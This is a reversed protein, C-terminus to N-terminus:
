KKMQTALTVPLDDADTWGLATTLDGRRILMLWYYKEGGSTCSWNGSKIYNHDQSNRGESKCTAIVKCKTM